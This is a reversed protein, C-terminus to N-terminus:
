RSVMFILPMDPDGVVPTRWKAEVRRWNAQTKFSMFFGSNCSFRNLCYYFYTGYKTNVFFCFPLRGLRLILRLKICALCMNIHSDCLANKRGWCTIFNSFFHEVKRVVVFRDM